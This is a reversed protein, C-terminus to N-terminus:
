TEGKFSEQERDHLIMETYYNVRWDELRLERSIELEPSKELYQESAVAEQYEQQSLKEPMRFAKVCLLSINMSLLSIGGESLGTSAIWREGPIYRSIGHHVWGLGSQRRSSILIFDFIHQDEGEM